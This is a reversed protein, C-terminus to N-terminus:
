LCRGQARGEKTGAEGMGGGGVAWGGREGEDRELVRRYLELAHRYHVSAKELLEPHKDSRESPASYAHLNAQVLKAFAEAHRSSSGGGGGGAAAAAAAAASQDLQGLLRDLM